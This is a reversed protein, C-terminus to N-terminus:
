LLDWKLRKMRGHSDYIMPLGWYAIGNKYETLTYFENEAGKNHGRARVAIIFSDYVGHVQFHVDMM